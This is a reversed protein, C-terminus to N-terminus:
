NPLTIELGERAAITNPFITKAELEINEIEDDDNEPNHHFLILQKVNAKKALAINNERLINYQDGSTISQLSQSIDKTGIIPFWKTLFSWM